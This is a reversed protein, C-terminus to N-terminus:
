ELVQEVEARAAERHLCHQHESILHYAAYFINMRFVENVSVNLGVVEEHANTTM